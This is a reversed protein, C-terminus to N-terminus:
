VHKCSRGNQDNLTIIKGTSHQKFALGVSSQINNVFRAYRSYEEEDEEDSDDEYRTVDDGATVHEKM